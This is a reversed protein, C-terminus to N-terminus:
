NKEPVFITNSNKAYTESLQALMSLYLTNNSFLATDDAQGIASFILPQMTHAEPHNPYIM